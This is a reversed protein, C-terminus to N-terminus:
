TAPRRKAVLHRTLLTLGYALLAIATYAAFLLPAYGWAEPEFLERRSLILLGSYGGVAMAVVLFVAALAAPARILLAAAIGAGSLFVFWYVIVWPNQPRVCPCGPPMDANCADLSEFVQVPKGACLLHAEQLHWAPEALQAFCFAVSITLLVAWDRSPSAIV